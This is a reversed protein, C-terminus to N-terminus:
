ISFSQNQSNIIMTSYDLNLGTASIQFKDSGSGNDEAASSYFGLPLDGSTADITV